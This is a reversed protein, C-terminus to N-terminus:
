LCQAHDVDVLDVTIVDDMSTEQIACNDLISSHIVLTLWHAPPRMQNCTVDHFVRIRSFFLYFFSHVKRAKYCCAGITSANELYPCAWCGPAEFFQGGSETCESINSFAPYETCTSNVFNCCVYQITQNFCGCLPNQLEEFM